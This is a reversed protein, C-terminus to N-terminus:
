RRRKTHPRTKWGNGTPRRSLRKQVDVIHESMLAFALEGDRSKIAEFVQRHRKVVNKLVDLSPHLDTIVKSAVELMADALMELIPNGAARAVLKHFKLDYSSPREGEEVVRSMKEIVEELELLDERTARKAALRAAEPEFILRAEAINDISIKRLQLLTQFPRSVLRHDVDAVFVGGQAGKKIYIVGEQELGRLAERVSTRSAAFQEALARENPLRDGVQFTGGLVAEKIQRLIEDSIRQMKVPEFM